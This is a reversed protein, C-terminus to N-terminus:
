KGMGHSLLILQRAIRTAGKGDVAKRGAASMRARDALSIRCAAEAAAALTDAVIASGFTKWDAAHLAQHSSQPIAVAPLGLCAAQVLMQGGALVALDCSAMVEALEAQNLWERRVVRPSARVASGPAGCVILEAAPVAKLLLAVVAALNGVTDNGGLAVLIRGTKERIRMRTRAAAFASHLSAYKPGLLAGPCSPYRRRTASPSANVVLSAGPPPAYHDDFLLVPNQRASAILLERQRYSDLVLACTSRGLIAKSFVNASASSTHSLQLELLKRMGLPTMM